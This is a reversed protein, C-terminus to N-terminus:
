KALVAWAMEGTAACKPPFALGVTPQMPHSRARVIGLGTVLGARRRLRPYAEGTVRQVRVEERVMAGRATARATGGVVTPM